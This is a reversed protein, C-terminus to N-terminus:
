VFDLRSSSPLACLMVVNVGQAAQDSLDRKLEEFSGMWVAYFGVPIFPKNNVLISQTSYDLQSVSKVRGARAPNKSVYAFACFWLVLRRVPLLLLLCTLACFCLWRLSLVLVGSVGARIPCKKLERRCSKINNLPEM